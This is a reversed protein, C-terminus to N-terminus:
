FRDSQHVILRDGFDYPGRDGLVNLSALGISRELVPQLVSDLSRLPHQARIQIAPLSLTAM